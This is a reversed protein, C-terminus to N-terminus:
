SQQKQDDKIQKINDQLGSVEQAAAPAEAEKSNLLDRIKRIGVVQGHTSLYEDYPLPTPQTMRNVVLSIEGDIIEFLTPASEKLAKVQNGQKVRKRAAELKEQMEQIYDSM